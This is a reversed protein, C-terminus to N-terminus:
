SVERHIQTVHGYAVERTGERIKFTVGAALKPLVEDPSLFRMLVRAVGGPALEEVDCLELRVDWDQGQIYLQPHWPVGQQWPQRHGGQDTTTMTLEAEAYPPM